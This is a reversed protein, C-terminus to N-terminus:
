VAQDIGRFPKAEELEYALELLLGDMGFAAAFQVGMPMGNQDTGLPLSIAPNGTVNYMGCYLAFNVARRSM